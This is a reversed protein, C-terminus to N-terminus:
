ISPCFVIDIPLFENFNEVCEESGNTFRFEIYQNLTDMM